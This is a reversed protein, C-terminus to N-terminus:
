VFCRMGGCSSRRCVFGAGPLQLATGARISRRTGRYACFSSYKSPPAQLHQWASKIKLPEGSYFPLILRRAPRVHPIDAQRRTSFSDGCFNRAQAPVRASQKAIVGLGVIQDLIRELTGESTKRLPTVAFVGALPQKRDQVIQVHVPKPSLRPPWRMHPQLAHPRILERRRHIPGGSTIEVM